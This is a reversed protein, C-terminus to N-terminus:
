LAPRIAYVFEGTYYSNGAYREVKVVDGTSPAHIMNGPSHALAVHHIGAQTGDDSFFMLDGPQLQSMDTIQQGPFSSQPVTTGGISKGTAQYWAYETLGSCDFGNTNAGQEIGYSPGAPGGGGWSYPTGLWRMAAAVAAAGKGSGVFSGGTIEADEAGPNTKNCELVKCIAGEMRRPVDQVDPLTAVSVIALCVVIYLGVFEISNQGTDGRRALRSRLRTRFTLLREVITCNEM